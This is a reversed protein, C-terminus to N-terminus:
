YGRKLEDVACSCIAVVCGGNQVSRWVPERFTICGKQVLDCHEWVRGGAIGCFFQRRGVHTGSAFSDALPAGNRFVTLRYKDRVQGDVVIASQQCIGGVGPIATNQCLQV